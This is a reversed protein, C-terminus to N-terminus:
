NSMQGSREPDDLAEEVSAHIVFITSLGTMRFFEMMEPRLAALEARGGATQLQKTCAMLVRVGVSALYTVGAFDLLVDTEGRRIAAEFHQKLLPAGSEDMRGSLILIQRGNRHSEHVEM